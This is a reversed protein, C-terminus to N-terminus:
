LYKTITLSPELRLLKRASAVAEEHRGLRELAITKVRVTSTHNTNSLLSRDALRLANAYDRNSLAATASLSDFFYKHPDLPSLKRARETCFVADEGLDMFANLTGKLLWSLPNNPDLALAQDFRQMAEDYNKLLNNQVFGDVSLSFSCAPNIDLARAAYDQAIASDKAFDTSWGQQISLVYWKSLWALPLASNPVRRVVEELYLRATSFGALTQQHMLFVGSMM